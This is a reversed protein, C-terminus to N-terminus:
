DEAQRTGINDLESIDKKDLHFTTGIYVEVIRINLQVSLIIEM